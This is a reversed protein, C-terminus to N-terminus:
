YRPRHPTFFQIPFNTSTNCICLYIKLSSFHKLIELTFIVKWKLLFAFQRVQMDSGHMVGYWEPFPTSKARYTLHYQYM